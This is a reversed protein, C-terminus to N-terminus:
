KTLLLKGQKTVTLRYETGRYVLRLVNGGQLLREVDCAPPVPRPEGAPGLRPSPGNPMASTTNLSLRLTM